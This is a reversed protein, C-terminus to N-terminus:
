DGEGEEFELIQDSNWEQDLDDTMVHGVGKLIAIGAGRVRIRLRAGAIEVRTREDLSRLRVRGFGELLLRGGPLPTVHGQGAM